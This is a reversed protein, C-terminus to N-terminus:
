GSSEPALLPLIRGFTTGITSGGGHILVLFDGKDGHMEWYMKIGNVDSYGKKFPAPKNTEQNRYNDEPCWSVFFLLALVETMITGKM